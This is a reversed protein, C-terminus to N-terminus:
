DCSKDVAEESCAQDGTLIAFLRNATLHDNIKRMRHAYKLKGRQFIWEGGSQDLAGGRFLGAWGHKCRQKLDYVCSGFFSDSSYPPPETFGEYTRKMGLKEYIKGSPDSYLPFADSTEDM